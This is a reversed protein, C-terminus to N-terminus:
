LAFYYMLNQQRILVPTLILTFCGKHNSGYRQTKPKLLCNQNCEMGFPGDRALPYNKIM